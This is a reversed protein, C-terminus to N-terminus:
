LNNLFNRICFNPLLYKSKLKFPHRQGQRKVANDPHKKLYKTPGIHGYYESATINEEQAISLFWFATPFVVSYLMCYSSLPSLLPM